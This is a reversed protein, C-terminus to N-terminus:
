APTEADDRISPFRRGRTTGSEGSGSSSGVLAFEPERQGSSMVREAIRPQDPVYYWQDTQIADRIVTFKEVANGIKVPVEDIIDEAALSAQAQAARPCIVLAIALALFAAASHRRRAARARHDRDTRTSRRLM